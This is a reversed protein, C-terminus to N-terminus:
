FPWIFDVIRTLWGPRQKDSVSGSGTYEIKADGIYSSLVTNDPSIDEPRILGSLIIFQTENNVRIERTGKIFLNGNPKVQIVRATISATMSEDRSTTGNGQYGNKISGKFMTTKDFLDPVGIRGLKGEWGMANDIGASISSDRSTKTDAKKSAKSTEVINVTVLDGVEHARLDQFFNRSSVDTWLGANITPDHIGRDLPNTEQVEFSPLVAAEHKMNSPYGACSSILFLSVIIPLLIKKM